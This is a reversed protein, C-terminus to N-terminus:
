GKKIRPLMERQWEKFNLPIEGETCNDVYFDYHEYQEDLSLENDERHCNCICNKECGKRQKCTCKSM